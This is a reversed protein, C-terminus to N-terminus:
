YAYPVDDLKPFLRRAEAEPLKDGNSQVAEWPVPSGFLKAYEAPPYKPFGYACWGDYRRLVVIRVPVIGFAWREVAQAEGPKDPTYQVWKTDM